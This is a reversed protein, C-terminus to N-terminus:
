CEDPLCVPRCELHISINSLTQQIHLAITEWCMLCPLVCKKKICCMEYGFSVPFLLFCITFVIFTLLCFCTSYFCYFCVLLYMQKSKFLMIELGVEVPLKSWMQAAHFSFAAEGHKTKVRTFALLGSAASRLPRCREYQTLFDSLFRFGYSKFWNLAMNSLGFWHELRDIRQRSWSANQKGSTAKVWAPALEDIVNWIKSIKEGISMSLSSPIM